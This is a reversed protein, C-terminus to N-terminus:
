GNKQKGTVSYHRITQHTNDSILVTWEGEMDPTFTGCYLGLGNKLIAEETLNINPYSSDCYGGPVYIEACISQGHAAEHQVTIPEGAKYLFDQNSVCGIQIEKWGKKEDPLKSKVIDKEIAARGVKAGLFCSAVFGKLFSRRKIKM